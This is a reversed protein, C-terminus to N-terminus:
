RAIPVPAGKASVTYRTAHSGVLAQSRVSTGANVLATTIDTLTKPRPVSILLSAGDFPGEPVAILEAVAAAAAARAPGAGWGSVKVSWM